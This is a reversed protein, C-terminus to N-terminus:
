LWEREYYVKVVVNDVCVVIVFLCWGFVYVFDVVWVGGDYLDCYGYACDCSM